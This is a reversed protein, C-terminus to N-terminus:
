KVITMSRAGEGKDEASLLINELSPVYLYCNWSGAHSSKSLTVERDKRGKCRISLWSFKILGRACAPTGYQSGPRVVM